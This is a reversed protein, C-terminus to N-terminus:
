YLTSFRGNVRRPTYEEEEDVKLLDASNRRFHLRRLWGFHRGRIRGDLFAMNELQGALENVDTVREAENMRAIIIKEQNFLRDLPYPDLNPIAPLLGNNSPFNWRYKFSKKQIIKLSRAIVYLSTTRNKFTMSNRREEKSDRRKESYGDLSVTERVRRGLQTSPFVISRRSIRLIEIEDSNGASQEKTFRNRLRQQRWKVIFEERMSDAISLQISATSICVESLPSLTSVAHQKILERKTYPLSQSREQKHSSEAEEQETDPEVVSERTSDSPTSLKMSPTSHSRLRLRPLKPTVNDYLSLRDSEDLAEPISTQTPSHNLALALAHQVLVNKRKKFSFIRRFTGDHSWVSQKKVKGTRKSSCPLSSASDLS